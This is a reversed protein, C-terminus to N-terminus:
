YTFNKVWFNSYTRCNTGPAASLAPPLLPDRQLDTPSSTRALQWPTQTHAGGAAQGQVPYCAPHTHFSRSETNGGQPSTSLSGSSQHRRATRRLGEAPGEGHWNQFLFTAKTPVASPQRKQGQARIGTM